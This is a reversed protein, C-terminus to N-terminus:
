WWRESDLACMTTIIQYYIEESLRLQDLDVWEDNSHAQKINGPGIVVAPKGSYFNPLAADTWFPLGCPSAHIQFQDELLHQLMAIVQPSGSSDLAPFPRDGGGLIVEADPRYPGDGPFGDRLLGELEELATGASEGPLLRRDLYVECSEPVITPRTGGTIQGVNVSPRGLLPHQRSELQPILVQQIGTLFRNADYIANHGQEPVSGHASKGHFAARMWCVGKHAIGLQLQTPEGVVTLDADYGTALAARMGCSGSEEDAVALFEVRGRAPPRDRFLRRMVLFMAALNDRVDVAGRGYLRNGCIRPDFPEPMEYPPVTDLHTCLTLKPGALGTDYVCSLNFRGGGVDLLRAPLGAEAFYRLLRKAVETEKEPLESYGPVRILEKTIEIVEESM